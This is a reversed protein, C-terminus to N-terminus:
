GKRIEYPRRGHQYGNSESGPMRRIADLVSQRTRIRIAKEIICLFIKKAASTLRARSPRSRRYVMTPVALIIGISRVTASCKKSRGLDNQNFFRCKFDYLLCTLL